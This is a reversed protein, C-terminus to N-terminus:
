RPDLVIKPRQIAFGTTRQFGQNGASGVLYSRRRSRNLDAPPNAMFGRSAVLGTAVPRHGGFSIRPVHGGIRAASVLSTERLEPVHTIPTRHLARIVVAHAAFALVGVIVGGAMRRPDGGIKVLANWCAHALGAAAVLAFIVPDM